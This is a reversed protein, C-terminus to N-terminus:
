IYNEFKLNHVCRIFTLIGWGCWTRIGAFVLRRAFAPSINAWCKLRHALMLGANPLRRTNAPSFSQLLPQCNIRRLPLHVEQRRRELLTWLSTTMFILTTTRFNMERIMISVMLKFITWEWISLSNGCIHFWEEWKLHLLDNAYHTYTSHYASWSHWSHM